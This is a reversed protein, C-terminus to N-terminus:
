GCVRPLLSSRSISLPHCQAGISPGPHDREIMGWRVQRDVVRAKTVFFNNAVALEGIKAHLSRVMEEDVEAAPKRSDQEFIDATGDLFAKKWQHTMTPHVGYEAAM